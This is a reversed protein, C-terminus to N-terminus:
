LRSRAGHDREGEGEKELRGGLLLRLRVRRRGIRLDLPFLKLTAGPNSTVRKAASGRTEFGVCIFKSLL